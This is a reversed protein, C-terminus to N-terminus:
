EEHSWAGTITPELIDAEFATATVTGPALAHELELTDCPTFHRVVGDLDFIVARVATV